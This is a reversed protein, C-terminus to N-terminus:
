RPGAPVPREIKMGLTFLAATLAIASLVCALVISAGPAVREFLQGGILPGLVSGLSSASQNVPQARSSLGGDSGM